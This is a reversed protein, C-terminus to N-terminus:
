TAETEVQIMPRWSNVPNDNKVEVFIDVEAQVESESNQETQQILNGM